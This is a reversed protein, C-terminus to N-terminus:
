KIGALDKWRDFGTIEDSDDKKPKTRRHGTLLGEEFVAKGAIKNIALRLKRRAATGKKGSSVINAFNKNDPDKLLKTLAEKSIPIKGSKTIDEIDQEIKAIVSAPLEADKGTPEAGTPEGSSADGADGAASDVPPEGAAKGTLESSAALTDVIDAKIEKEAPALEKATKMFSNLSMSLASEVFADPDSTENLNGLFSMIKTIIDDSVEASQQGQKVADEYWSPTSWAKRLASTLQKIGVFKGEWTDPKVDVEEALAKMPRSAKSALPGAFQELNKAVMTFATTITAALKGADETATLIEKSFKKLEEQDDSNLVQSIDSDQPLKEGLEKLQSKLSNAEDPLKEMISEILKRTDHIESIFENSDFEDAEALIRISRENLARNLNAIGNSRYGHAYALFEINARAQNKVIQQM